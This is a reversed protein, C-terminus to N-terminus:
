AQLEGPKGSCKCPPREKGLWQLSSQEWFWSCSSSDLDAQIFLASTELSAERSWRQKPFLVAQKEWM